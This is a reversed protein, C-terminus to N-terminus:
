RARASSERLVEQLQTYADIFKLGLETVFYQQARRNSEREKVEILNYKTLFELYQQIQKSNLNCRYMIRTKVAGKQCELLILNTIEIWGRNRKISLLRREVEDYTNFVAPAGLSALEFLRSYRRCALNAGQV